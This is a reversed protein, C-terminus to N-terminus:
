DCKKKWLKYVNENKQWLFLYHSTCAPGNTTFEIIPNRADICWYFNIGAESIDSYKMSDMSLDYSLEPGLPSWSNQPMQVLWAEKKDEQSLVLFWKYEDWTLVKFIKENGKINDSLFEHKQTSDIMKFDNNGFMLAATVYHPTEWWELFAQQNKHHKLKPRMTSCSVSLIFIIFSITCTVIVRKM